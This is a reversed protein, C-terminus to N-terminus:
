RVWVPDWDNSESEMFRRQNKGDADMIWLQKRGTGRNSWFLIRKGDPSWTPHKNWLGHGTRTLRIVPAHPKARTVYIEDGAGSENSVFVVRDDVPSWAPDYAIGSGVFTIQWRSKNQPFFVWLQLNEGVYVRYAHDPSWSQAQLARDYVDPPCKGVVKGGADARFIKPDGFFDTERDSLFCIKGKYDVPTPTPRKKRSRKTAQATPTAMEHGLTAPPTGAEEWWGRTPTPVPTCTATPALTPAAVVPIEAGGCSSLIAAAILALATLMAGAKM